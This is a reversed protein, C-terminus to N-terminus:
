YPSHPLVPLGERRTKAQWLRARGGDWGGVGSMSMRSGSGFQKMLRPQFLDIAYRTRCAVDWIGPNIGLRRLAHRIGEPHWWIADPLGNKEVQGTLFQNRRLSPHARRFAILERVFELNEKDSGDLNWDYWSIENDQCYPNNNGQQTRGLEDGGLLMPVGQSVFLTALLSRKLRDRHALIDLNTSSGEQGCNQSYNVSRGDRGNERNAENHKREYPCWTRSHLGM